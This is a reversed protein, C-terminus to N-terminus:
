FLSSFSSVTVYRFCAVNNVLVGWEWEGGEIEPASSAMLLTLPLLPVLISKEHVQFSFLFFAMSCNFLAYPLLGITPAPRGTHNSISVKIAQAKDKDKGTTDVELHLKENGV